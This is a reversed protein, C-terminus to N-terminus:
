LSGLKPKPLLFVWYIPMLELQLLPIRQKAM